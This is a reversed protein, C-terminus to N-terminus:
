NNVLRNYFTWIELDLEALDRGLTEAHRLFRMEWRRYTNTNTPTKLPASSMGVARLWKLIHTDLVALKQKPRTHLLFFRSTKCGVGYVNELEEVTCKRLDLSLSETFARHIRTYQGLKDHRIAGDLSSDEDNELFQIYQFPTVKMHETNILFATLKKAQVSATKGAALICFLWFAELEYQTRNFNTINFPDVVPKM